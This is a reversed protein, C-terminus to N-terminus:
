VGVAEVAKRKEEESVQIVQYARIVSVVVVRGVKRFAIEDGVEAGLMNRIPKSLAVVASHGWRRVRVTRFIKAGESEPGGSPTGQKENV